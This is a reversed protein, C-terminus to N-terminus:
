LDRKAPCNRELMSIRNELERIEERVISGYILLGGADDSKSLIKHISKLKSEEKESSGKRLQNLQQLLLLIGILGGVLSNPDVSALSDM